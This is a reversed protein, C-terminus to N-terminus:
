ESIPEPELWGLAILDDWPEDISCSGFSTGFTLRCAQLQASTLTYAGVQLTAGDFVFADPDALELVDRVADEDLQAVQALAAAAFVNVFGM